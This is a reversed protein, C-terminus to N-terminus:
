KHRLGVILFVGKHLPHTAWEPTHHPASIIVLALSRRFDTRPSSFLPGRTTPSPPWTAAEMIPNRWWSAHSRWVEAEQWLTQALAPGTPSTLSTSLSM